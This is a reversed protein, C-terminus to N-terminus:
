HGPPKSQKPNSGKSRTPLRSVLGVLGTRELWPAETGRKQVELLQLKTPAGCYVAVKSYIWHGRDLGGIPSCLRPAFWGVKSNPGHQGGVLTSNNKPTPNKFVSFNPTVRKPWWGSKPWGRSDNWTENGADGVGIALKPLWGSLVHCFFHPTLKPKPGCRQGVWKPAVFIKPRWGHPSHWLGSRQGLWGSRNPKTGRPGIWSLVLGSRLPVRRSPKAAVVGRGAGVNAEAEGVEAVVGGAEVDGRPWPAPTGSPAAPGRRRSCRAPWSGRPAAFQPAAAREAPNPRTQNPEPSLNPKTFPPLFFPGSLKTSLNTLIHKM